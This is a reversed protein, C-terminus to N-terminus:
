FLGSVIFDLYNYVIKVFGSEREIVPLHFIGILSFDRDQVYSHEPTPPIAGIEEFPVPAGRM